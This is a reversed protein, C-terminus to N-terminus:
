AYLPPLSRTVEFNQPMQPFMVYESVGMSNVNSYDLSNSPKKSLNEASEDTDYKLPLGYYRFIFGLFCYYSHIHKTGVTM